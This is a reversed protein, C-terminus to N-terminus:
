KGDIYDNILAQFSGNLYFVALKLYGSFIHILKSYGDM